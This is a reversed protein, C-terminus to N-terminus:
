KLYKKRAKEQNEYQKALNLRNKLDTKYNYGADREVKKRYHQSGSRLGLGGGLGGLFAMTRLRNNYNKYAENSSSVIRENWNGNADPYLQLKNRYDYKSRKIKDGYTRRAENSRNMQETNMRNYEKEWFDSRAKLAKYKAQAKNYRRINRSSSNALLKKYRINAKKNAKEAHIKSEIKAAAAEEIERDGKRLTKNIQHVTRAKGVEKGGAVREGERYPQYRRIGWKQGLVGHHYLENPYASRPNEWM